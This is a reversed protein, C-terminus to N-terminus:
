QIKIFFLLSFSNEGISYCALVSCLLILFTYYSVYFRCSTKFIGKHWKLNTWTQSLLQDLLENKIKTGEIDQFHCLVWIHPANPWFQLQNPIHRAGGAASHSQLHLTTAPYHGHSLIRVQGSGRRSVCAERDFLMKEILKHNLKQLMIIQACHFSLSVWASCLLHTTRRLDDM